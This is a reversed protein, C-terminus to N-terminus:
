FLVVLMKLFHGEARLWNAIKWVNKYYFKKLLEKDKKVVATAYKMHSDLSMYLRNDLIKVALPDTFPPGVLPILSILELTM